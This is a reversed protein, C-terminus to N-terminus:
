GGQRADKVSLSTSTKGEVHTDGYGMIVDPLEAVNSLALDQWYRYQEYSHNPDLIECLIATDMIVYVNNAPGPVAFEEIQAYPSDKDIEGIEVYRILGRRHLNATELDRRASSSDIRCRWQYRPMDAGFDPKRFERLIIVEPRGMLITKKAGPYKHIVSGRVEVMQGNPLTTYRGPHQRKQWEILAARQAAQQELSLKQTVELGYGDDHNASVPAVTPQEEPKVNPTAAAEAATQKPM